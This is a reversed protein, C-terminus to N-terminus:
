NCRRSIDVFQEKLALVDAPRFRKLPAGTSVQYVWWEETSLGQMVRFIVVDNSDDFLVGLCAPLPPLLRSSTLRRTAERDGCTGVM